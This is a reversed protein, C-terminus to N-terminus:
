GANRLRPDIADRLADGVLNYSLVALFICVCPPVMLYPANRVYDPDAAMRLINGWSPSPPQVGFGLYSLGAETMIAGAIGFTLTVMVPALSNPLIHRFMIRIHGIGLSRAALVYDSNRHRIFEARTYRAIGTWRTLGLVIMVNNISPELWVMITLILFFVPFCMVIEIIRCIAIDVWGGWYGAAGGVIIGILAAIGMSIFGVQAAVSTGHVMRAALDRGMGDCGMLHVKSPPCPWAVDENIELEGYPIVPWLAWSDDPNDIKDQKLAERIDFSPQNFPESKKIWHHGYGRSQFVEVIGPAYLQGKYKCLIPKNNAILPSLLAVILMFVVFTLGLMARKNRKMRRWISAIYGESKKAKLTKNQSDTM